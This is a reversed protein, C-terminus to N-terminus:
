IDQGCYTKQAEDRQIAEDRLKNYEPLLHAAEPQHHMIWVIMKHLEIPLEQAILKISSKTPGIARYETNFTISMHNALLQKKRRPFAM